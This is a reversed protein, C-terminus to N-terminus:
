VLLGDYWTTDFVGTLIQDDIVTYRKALKEKDEPIKTAFIFHWLTSNSLRYFEYDPMVKKWFSYTEEFTNTWVDVDNYVIDKIDMEPIKSNLKKTFVNFVVREFDRSYFEAIKEVDDFTRDMGVFLSIGINNESIELECPYREKIYKIRDSGVFEEFLKNVYEPDAFFEDYFDQFITNDIGTYHIDPDYALMFAQMQNGCGIDYLNTVGLAYCLAFIREYRHFCEPRHPNDAMLKRKYIRHDTSDGNGQIEDGEYGEFFDVFAARISSKTTSGSKLKKQLVAFEEDTLASIDEEKFYQYINRNLSYTKSRNVNEM